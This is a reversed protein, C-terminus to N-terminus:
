NPQYELKLEFTMGTGSIILENYNEKELHIWFDLQWGNDDSFSVEYGLEELLEELQSPNIGTDTFNIEKEEEPHKEVEEIFNEVIPKFKNRLEDTLKYKNM